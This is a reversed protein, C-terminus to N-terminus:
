HYALRFVAVASGIAIGLEAAKLLAEKSKSDPVYLIDSPRMAIDESQRTLVKKLDVETESQKGTGDRRIIVAHDLKAVSTTGGALSLVKLTTMVSRDNTLVFGGPKTVAGLVYIIGAHPVTVVDGAQLPINDQTDGSELLNNLNITLPGDFKAPPATATPTTTADTAASPFAPASNEATKAASANQIEDLSPPEGSGPASNTAVAPVKDNGTEVATFTATHLRTVIVTDGADPAVGGAEALVELLTVQRDAEYVMPHVVAGVITIPRSKHERVMVAVEPHSVLGNAELVEALKQEAQLETLGSVHIRVPVLPMGITGTQSVRIQRTLEPVDFVSIDLLDGDGIVYDHHINKAEVSLDHIRENTQQPTELVPTQEKGSSQQAPSAPQVSTQQAWVPAVGLLIGLLGACFLSRPGISSALVM